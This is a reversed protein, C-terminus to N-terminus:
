VPGDNGHLVPPSKSQPTALRHRDHLLSNARQSLVTQTNVTLLELNAHASWVHTCCGAPACGMLMTLMNTQLPNDGQASLCYSACALSTGAM